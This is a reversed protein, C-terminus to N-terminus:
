KKLGGASFARLTEKVYRWASSAEIYLITAGNRVNVRARTSNRRLQTRVDSSNNARSPM